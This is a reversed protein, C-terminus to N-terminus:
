KHDIQLTSSSNPTRYRIKQSIMSNKTFFMYKKHVNSIALLDVTFEYNDGISHKGQTRCHSQKVFKTDVLECFIRIKVFLEIIECFYLAGSGFEDFM